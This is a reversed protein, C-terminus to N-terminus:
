MLIRCVVAEKMPPPTLLLLMEQRMISSSIAGFHNPSNRTRQLGRLLMAICSVACALCLWRVPFAASRGRDRSAPPEDVGATRGEAPRNRCQTSRARSGVTQRYTQMYPRESQGAAELM